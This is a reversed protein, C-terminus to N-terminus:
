FPSQVLETFQCLTILRHRVYSLLISNFFCHWFTREPTFRLKTGQGFVNFIRRKLVSYSGGCFKSFLQKGDKLIIM